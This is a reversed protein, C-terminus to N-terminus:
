TGPVPIGDETNIDFDVNDSDTQFVYGGSHVIIGNPPTSFHYEGFETSLNSDPAATDFTMSGDLKSFEPIPGGTLNESGISQVVQATFYFTISEARAEKAMLGTLILGLLGVFVFRSKFLRTGM